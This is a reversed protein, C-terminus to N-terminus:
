KSDGQQVDTLEDVWCMAIEGAVPPEHKKYMQKTLEHAESFAAWMLMVTEGKPMQEPPFSTLLWNQFLSHLMAISKGRMNPLTNM